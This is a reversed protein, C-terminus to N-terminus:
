DPLEDSGHLTSRVDGLLQVPGPDEVLTSKRHRPAQSQQIGRCRAELRELRHWLGQALVSSPASERSSAM